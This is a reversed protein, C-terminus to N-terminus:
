NEKMTLKNWLETAEEGQYANIITILDKGEKQQKQGVLLLSADANNGCTYSVIISQAFENM